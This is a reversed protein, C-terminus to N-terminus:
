NTAMIPMVPLCDGIRWKTPMLKCGRGEFMKIPMSLMVLLEISEKGENHSKVCAVVHLLHHLHHLHLSVALAGGGVHGVSLHGHGGHGRSAPLLGLVIPLGLISSKPDM